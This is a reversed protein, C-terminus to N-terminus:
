PILERLIKQAPALYKTMVEEKHANLYKIGPKPAEEPVLWFRRPREFLFRLVTSRVAWFMMLAGLVGALTVVASM